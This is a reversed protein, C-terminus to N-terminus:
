KLIGKLFGKGLEKPIANKIVNKADDPIAKKLEKEISKKIEKNDSIRPLVQKLLPENPDLDPIIKQMRGLVDGGHGVKDFLKQYLMLTYLRAIQDFRVSGIKTNKLNQSNVSYEFSLDDSKSHPHDSIDKLFAKNVDIYLKRAEDQLFRFKGFRYIYGSSFEVVAPYNKIFLNGNAKWIQTGKSLTEMEHLLKFGSKDSFISLDNIKFHRRTDDHSAVLEFNYDYNNNELEAFKFVDKNNIIYKIENNLMKGFSTSTLTPALMNDYRQFLEDFMGSKFFIKSSMDIRYDKGHGDIGSAYFLKLENFNIFPSLCKAAIRVDLGKQLEKFNNGKTKLDLKADIDFGSPLLSFGYFLSVPLRRSKAANPKTKVKYKATLKQPINNLFDEANKYEKQPVFSILLKEYEKDYFKENGNLDFINVSGSSAHIDGIHNVIEFPDQMNKITNVLDMTIPLDVEISYNDVVLRAGFGHSEPKYFAEIEGSYTIFLKQLLLDYGFYIPSDYKIKADRSEESWGQAKWSIKYPFGASNVQDFTIFYEREDPGKIPIQKGAYKDNLEYSVKFTVYYWLGSVAILILIIFIILFKVLKM